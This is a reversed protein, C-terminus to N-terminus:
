CVELSEIDENLDQEQKEVVKRDVKEVVRCGMRGKSPKNGGGSM